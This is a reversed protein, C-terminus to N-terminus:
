EGFCPDPPEALASSIGAASIAAFSLIIALMAIAVRRMDNRGITPRSKGALRLLLDSWLKAGVLAQCM